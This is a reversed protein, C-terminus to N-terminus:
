TLVDDNLTDPTEDELDAGVCVSALLADVHMILQSTTLQAANDHATQGTLPQHLFVRRPTPQPQTASM